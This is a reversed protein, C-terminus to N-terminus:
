PRSEAIQYARLIEDKLLSPLLDYNQAQDSLKAMLNTSSDFGDIIAQIVLLTCITFEREHGVKLANAGLEIVEYPYWTQGERLAGDQDFIVARLNELHQHFDQGYDLNAIYSLEHESVSKIISSLM